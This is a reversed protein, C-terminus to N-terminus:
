GRVRYRILKELIGRGDVQRLERFLEKHSKISLSLKMREILVVGMSRGLISTLADTPRLRLPHRRRGRSRYHDDIPM